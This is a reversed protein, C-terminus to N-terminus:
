AVWIAGPWSRTDRGTYALLKEGPSSGAAPVEAGFVHGRGLPVRVRATQMAVECLSDPLAVAVGLSSGIDWAHVLSDLQNMGAALDAPIEGMPLTLVKAPDSMRQWATLNRSVTADFREMLTRAATERLPPAGTGSSFMDIAGIAHEVLERLQWRACPTQRDLLPDDVQVLPDRLVAYTRALLDPWDTM